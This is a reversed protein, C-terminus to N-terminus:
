PCPTCQEVCSSNFYRPPILAGPSFKADSDKHLSGWSVNATLLHPKVEPARPLPWTRERPPQWAGEDTMVVRVRMQWCMWTHHLSGMGEPTAKHGPEAREGVCDVWVSAWSGQWLCTQLFHLTCAASTNRAGPGQKELCDGNNWISKSLYCNISSCATTSRWSLAPMAAGQWKMPYFCHLQEQSGRFMLKNFEIEGGQSTESHCKSQAKTQWSEELSGESGLFPSGSRDWGAGKCGPFFLLSINKSSPM